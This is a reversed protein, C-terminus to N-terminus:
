DSSDCAESFGCTCEIIHYCRFRDYKSIKHDKPNIKMDWEHYERALELEHMFEDSKFNICGFDKFFRQKLDETNNTDLLESLENSLM